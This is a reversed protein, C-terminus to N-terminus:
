TWNLQNWRRERRGFLVMVVRLMMMMLMMMRKRLYGVNLRHLSFLVITRVRIRDAHMETERRWRSVMRKRRQINLHIMWMAVGRLIKIRGTMLGVNM